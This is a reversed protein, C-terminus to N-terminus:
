DTADGDDGAREMMQKYRRSLSNLLLTPASRKLRWYWRARGGIVAYLQGRHSARLTERAVGGADITSTRVLQEAQDLHQRASFVGKNLLASSFFGPAAVTVNVGHPRLEAYLSESLAVVAAKSACYAGLAPTPTLGMISAINIIAPKHGAIILQNDSVASAKLWPVMTHCGYLVGLYNVENVRRWAALDGEGVEASMCVGANNVLLDLRPWARQLRQRVEFWGDASAVDLRICQGEIRAQRKVEALTQEAGREDIDVLVIHWSGHAALLERCFARGLGGAAGTIIALKASKHSMM